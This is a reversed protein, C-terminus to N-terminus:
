KKQLVAIRPISQLDPRIELLNWVTTDVARKLLESQDFGIEVILHGQTKLFAPTELLLRRVHDLGDVGSALALLPEHERVERQLTPIVAEAIYPPNSVVLDFSEADLSKFLDSNLFVVRDLVGHDSANMRAVDLAAPSIDLATAHADSMECLLTVAICGSGTGVDCLRPAAVGKLKEIAIEVLIETEPRPILVAPTVTFERGYFDQKGIIYQLPEGSARRDVLKTFQTLQDSTLLDEAHSIISTRDRDIVFSLLSGSERRAEEIGAKRLTQSAQLLAEAITTAM